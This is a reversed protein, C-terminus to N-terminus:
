VVQVIYPPTYRGIIANDSEAKTRLRLARFATLASDAVCFYRLGDMWISVHSGDVHLTYLRPYTLENDPMGLAGLETTSASVRKILKLQHSSATNQYVLAYADCDWASPDTAAIEVSVAANVGEAAHPLVGMTIAAETHTTLPFNYYVAYGDGTTAGTTITAHGADALTGGGGTSSNGDATPFESFQRAHAAITSLAVPCVADRLRTALPLSHKTFLAYDQM